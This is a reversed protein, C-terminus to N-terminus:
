FTYEFSFDFSNSSARANMLRTLGTKMSIAGVKIDSSIGFNTEGATTRSAHVLAFDNLNARVGFKAYNYASVVRDYEVATDSSGTETYEGYIERGIVVGGFLELREGTRAEVDLWSDSKSFAGNNVGSASIRSYEVSSVSHNLSAEV